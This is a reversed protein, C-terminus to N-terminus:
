ILGMPRYVLINSDMRRGSACVLLLLTIFVLKILLDASIMGLDHKFDLSFDAKNVFSRQEWSKEM